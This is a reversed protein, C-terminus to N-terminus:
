GENMLAVPRKRLGFVERGRRSPNPKLKHNQGWECIFYDRCFPIDLTIFRRQLVLQKNGGGPFLLFYSETQSLWGQDEVVRRRLPEIMALGGFASIGLYLFAALIERLNPAKM